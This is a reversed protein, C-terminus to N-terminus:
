EPIPASSSPEMSTAKRSHMSRGRSPGSRPSPWLALNASPSRPGQFEGAELTLLKAAASVASKPTSPLEWGSYTDRADVIAGSVSVAGHGPALTVTVHEGAGVVPLGRYSQAFRHLVLSGHHRPPVNGATLGALPATNPMAVSLGAREPRESIWQKFRNLM